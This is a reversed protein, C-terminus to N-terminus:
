VTVGWGRLQEVAKPTLRRRTWAPEWVIKLEVSGVNPEKLLRERVDAIIFEMCPCGMSTFTLDITVVADDLRIHYILGMDVVSVPYEPDQVEELALWLQLVQASARQKAPVVWPPIPRPTLVAADITGTPSASM